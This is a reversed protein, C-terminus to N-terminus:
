SRDAGLPTLTTAATDWAATLTFRDARIDTRRREVPRGLSCAIRDIRLVATRPGLGLLERLARDPVRASIQETGASVHVGCDTALVSYLARTTLDAELLPAALPAPLWSIDHAIPTDDAFRVREILVLATDSPLGLEAAIQPDVSLGRNVIESRHTLGQSELTDVLTALSGLDRNVAPVAVTSGRGRASHVLGEARLRRLAERMTHRSVAYEQALDHEGPMREAFTGDAIRRRLDDSVQSWVPLPNARDPLRAQSM